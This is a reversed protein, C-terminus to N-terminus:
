NGGTVLELNASLLIHDSPEFQTPMPGRGEPTDRHPLSLVSLVKWQRFIKKNEKEKEAEVEVEVEEGSKAADTTATDEKESAGAGAGEVTEGERPKVTRDLAGAEKPDMENGLFIYDLTDIFPEM